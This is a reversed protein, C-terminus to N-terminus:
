GNSCKPCKRTAARELVGNLDSVMAIIEEPMMGTKTEIERYMALEHQLDACLAGVEVNDKLLEYNRDEAENYKEKWETVNDHSRQVEYVCDGAVKERYDLEKQLLELQRKYMNANGYM